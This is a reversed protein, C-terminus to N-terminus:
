LNLFDNQISLEEKLRRRAEKLQNKVTMPSSQIVQAIEKVKMGREKSMLLVSKTKPPLAAILKELRQEADRADCADQTLHKGTHRRSMESFVKRQIGTKKQQNIFANRVMFFMFAKVSQIGALKEKREWLRTFVDQAMDESVHGYFCAIQQRVVAIYRKYMVTFADAAGLSILELLLHDPASELSHLAVVKAAGPQIDTILTLAGDSPKTQEATSYV